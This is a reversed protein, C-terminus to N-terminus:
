TRRPLTPTTPAHMVRTVCGLLAEAPVDHLDYHGRAHPGDYTVPLDDPIVVEALYEGPGWKWKQANDRAAGYTDFVSVGEWSRM